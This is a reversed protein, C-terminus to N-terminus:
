FPRAMIETKQREAPSSGAPPCAAPLVPPFQVWTRTHLVELSLFFRNVNRFPCIPPCVTYNTRTWVFLAGRSFPCMKEPLTLLDWLVLGTHRRMSTVLHRESSISSPKFALLAWSNPLPPELCPGEIFTMNECSWQAALPLQAGQCPYPAARSRAASCSQKGRWWM